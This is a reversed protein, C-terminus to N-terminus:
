IKIKKTSISKEKLVSTLFYHNLFAKIIPNKEVVQEYIILNNEHERDVKSKPLKTIVIEIRASPNKVVETFSKMEQIRDNM